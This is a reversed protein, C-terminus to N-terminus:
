ILHSQLLLRKIQRLQKLVLNVTTRIKRSIKGLMPVLIANDASGHELYMKGFRVITKVAWMVANIHLMMKQLICDEIISILRLVNKVDEKNGIKM